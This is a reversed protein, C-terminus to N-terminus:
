PRVNLLNIAIKKKCVEEKQHGYLKKKIIFLGSACILPLSFINRKKRINNKKQMAKSKKQKM